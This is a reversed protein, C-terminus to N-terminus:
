RSPQPSEDFFLYYAELLETNKEEQIRKIQKDIENKLEILRTEIFPNKKLGNKTIYSHPNFRIFIFKGGHLMMLDDYRLNEDEKNRYKHQDEDVEICLLTNGLLTRFDIRRRCSCDAQGTWLSKNHIFSYEKYNEVLFDRVKMEETKGRINMTRPDTPFNQEFCRVCYYDYKKKGVCGFPCKQNQQQLEFTGKCYRSPCKTSVIDTMGDKKCNFCYLPVKDEPMGFFPQSKGCHCKKVKINIMESSKCNACCNPKKDSQLGFVPQSKGCKCKKSLIDVMEPTKCKVCCYPALDTKLGFMPQTKGCKCKKSVINVMKDTKCNLCHTPKKDGEKGFVPIAKGCQCKKTVINEMGEKACKMCYSPKKDGPKGFVATKGCPCLDNLLGIMGEKKCEKCCTPKKDQPFGFSPIVKGCQCKKNKDKLNLMGDKKCESCYNARKDTPMGYTPLHKKCNCRRDTVNEMSDKKCKACCSSREDEPAKFRPTSLGCKCIQYQTVAKHQLGHSRCYEPQAFRFGYTAESKCTPEKCDPM